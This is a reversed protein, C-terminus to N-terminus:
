EAFVACKKMGGMFNIEKRMYYDRLENEFLMPLYEPGKGILECKRVTYDLVSLAVEVPIDLVMSVETQGYVEGLEDIIKDDIKM